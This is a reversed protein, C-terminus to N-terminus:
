SKLYNRLAEALFEPSVALNKTAPTTAPGPSAADFLGSYRASLISKSLLSYRSLTGSECYCEQLFRTQLEKSRAIDEIVVESLVQLDAQFLNRGKTGPYVQVQTALRPPVKPRRKGLLRIQPRSEEVASRSLADWFDIFHDCIFLMSPFVVAQGEMFAVGDSRNAIFVVVQYGNSVAALPIGRQHCYESVQKVAVKLTPSAHCISELVYTVHNKEAPLHFYAGERKAELVMIARPAYFTYDAYQGAYTVEPVVDHKPWALCDYLLTDILHSRTTAENRDGTHEEYYACLREANKLCEEYTLLDSHM